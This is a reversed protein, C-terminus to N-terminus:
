SHSETLRNQVVGGRIVLELFKDPEALVRLDQFPEGAVGIIDAFAGATVTGIQGAMNVLPANVSTASRVVEVPSQVRGRAIFEHCQRDLPEGTHLREGDFLRVAKIKLNAM